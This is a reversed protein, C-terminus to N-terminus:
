IFSPHNCRQIYLAFFSLTVRVLSARMVFGGESLRQKQKKCAGVALAVVAVVVAEAGLITAKSRGRVVAAMRTTTLARAARSGGIKARGGGAGTLGTAMTATAVVVARRRGNRGQAAAATTIVM